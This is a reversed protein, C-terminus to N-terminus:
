GAGSGNHASEKQGKIAEVEKWREVAPHDSPMAGLVARARRSDSTIPVGRIELYRLARGVAHRSVQLSEALQAQTPPQGHSAIWALWARGVTERTAQERERSRRM